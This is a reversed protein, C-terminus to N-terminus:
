RSLTSSAAAKWRSPTGIRYAREGCLEDEITAHKSGTSQCRQLDTYHSAACPRISRFFPGGHALIAGIVRHARVERAAGGDAAEGARSDGGCQRRGSEVERPVTSAGRRTRRYGGRM